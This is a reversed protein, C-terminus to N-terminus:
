PVETSRRALYSAVQQRQESRQRLELKAARVIQQLDRPSLGDVTSRASRVGVFGEILLHMVESPSVEHNDSSPSEKVAALFLEALKPTLRVRLIYKRAEGPPLQRRGM